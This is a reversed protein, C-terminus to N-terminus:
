EAHLLTPLPTGGGPTPAGAPLRRVLLRDGHWVTPAMSPGAVRALVWRTPLGPLDDPSSSSTNDSIM